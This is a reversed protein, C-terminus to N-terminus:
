KKEKIAEKIKKTYEDVIKMSSKVGDDYGTKYAFYAVGLLILASVAVLLTAEM